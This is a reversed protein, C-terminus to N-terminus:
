YFECILQLEYIDNKTMEVLFPIASVVDNLIKQAFQISIGVDEETTRGDISRLISVLRSFADTANDRTQDHKMGEFILSLMDYQAIYKFPFEVHRLWTSLCDLASKADVTASKKMFDFVSPTMLTLSKRLSLLFEQQAFSLKAEGEAISSFILLLTSVNSPDNPNFKQIILPFCDSWTNSQICLATLAQTLHATIMRMSKFNYLANLTYEFMQQINEIEKFNFCIKKKLIIAGNYIKQTFCPENQQTQFLIPVASWAEKTKIFDSIYTNANKILTNDQSSFLIEIAQIFQQINPSIQQQQM